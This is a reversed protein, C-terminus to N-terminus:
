ICSSLLDNPAMYDYRTYYIYHKSAFAFVSDLQLSKFDPGTRISPNLIDYWVFSNIVIDMCDQVSNTKYLHGIMVHAILYVLM